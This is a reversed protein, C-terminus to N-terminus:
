ETFGLKNARERLEEYRKDLEPDTFGKRARWEAYHDLAFMAEEPDDEVILREAEDLAAKPDM